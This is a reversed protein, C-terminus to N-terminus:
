IMNGFRDIIDLHVTDGNTAGTKAVTPEGVGMGINSSLEGRDELAHNIANQYGQIAGPLLEDSAQSTILGRRSANYEPSLLVDMPVDVFNPDGYYAERDAFALKAAEVVSHVFDAGLPDM